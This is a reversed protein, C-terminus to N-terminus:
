DTKEYLTYKMERAMEWKEDTIEKLKNKHIFICSEQGDHYLRVYDDKVFEPLSYDVGVETDKPCSGYERYFDPPTNQFMRVREDTYKKLRPMSSTYWSYEYPSFLKSQWYIMDDSADLFLTDDPNSLTKLVEGKELVSGYNNIFEEHTDVKNKAFYDSSIIFAGFSILLVLFGSIFIKKNKIKEFLLILTIFIILGYWPVMHFSSYFLTGPFAPRINAFGLLIFIFGAILFKRNWILNVFLAIFVLDIGVLLTKFINWEGYFLLYIPYFFWHLYRPGVMDLPLESPLNNQFNFVVMNYFYEHLDHSIIMLLSLTTFILVSLISIKKIPFSVVIFLYAFLTMPVFPARIFVIFWCFFAALIYDLNNIKEHMLRKLGIGVMYISPYVVMAEGLFRDGFIYFKSFEFIVIFFIIKPGFRFILIINALFGFLMVFQRHRLILEFISEPASIVQVLASIYSGLPQHGSFVKSFLPNGHLFFYGRMFNNCDDFCGFANVRPIYIKYLIIYIPILLLVLLFKIKNSIIFKKIKSLFM